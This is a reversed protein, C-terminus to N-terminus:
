RRCINLLRRGESLETPEGFLPTPDQQRKWVEAVPDAPVSIATGEASDDGMLHAIGRLLDVTKFPKAFFATVGAQRAAERTAEDDFATLVAIPVHAYGPLRRIQACAAFGDLKPMKYDLIVLHANTRTAYDIAEIGDVAQLVSFNQGELVSRLIGRIIYDNDAIIVDRAPANSSMEAVKQNRSETAHHDNRTAARNIRRLL